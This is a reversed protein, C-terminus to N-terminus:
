CNNSLTRKVVGEGRKGWGKGGGGGRVGGGGVGAGLKNCMYICHVCCVEKQDQELSVVHVYRYEIKESLDIVVM